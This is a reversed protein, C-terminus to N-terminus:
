TYRRIPSSSMGPRGRGNGADQTKVRRRIRQPVQAGRRGNDRVGDSNIPSLVHWMRAIEDDLGGVAPHDLKRAAIEPRILGPLLSQHERHIGRLLQALLPSLIGLDTEEAVIAM